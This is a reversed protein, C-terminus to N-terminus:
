RARRGPRSKINNLAAPRMEHRLAAQMRKPTKATIAARSAPDIEMDVYQEQIPQRLTGSYPRRWGTHPSELWVRKFVGVHGTRMEAWFAGEFYHRGVRVGHRGRKGMLRARRQANTILYAAALPVTGVWVHGSPSEWPDQQPKPLRQIVRRRSKLINQPVNMQTSMARLVDRTAQKTVTASARRAAVAIQWPTAELTALTEKLGDFAIDLKM